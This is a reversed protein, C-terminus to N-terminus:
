PRPAAPRPVLTDTFTGGDPSLVKRKLMLKPEPRLSDLRSRQEPTLIARLEADISDAVARLRDSVELMMVEARPTRRQIIAEARARQDSTLQLRDLVGSLDAGFSARIVPRPRTFRDLAAGAAMGAIFVSVLVVAGVFRARSPAGNM